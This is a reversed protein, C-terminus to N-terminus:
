WIEEHWIEKTVPHERDDATWNEEHWSMMVSHEMEEHWTFETMHKIKEMHLASWQQTNSQGWDAIM